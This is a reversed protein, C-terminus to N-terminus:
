TRNSTTRYSRNLALIIKRQIRTLKEKQYERLKIRWIKQGYLISPLCVQIYINRKFKLKLDKKLWNRMGIIKTLKIVKEELCEIHKNWKLESDIELGLYKIADTFEIQKEHIEFRDKIVMTKGINM